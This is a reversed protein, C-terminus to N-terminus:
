KSAKLQAQVRKAWGDAQKTEDGALHGQRASCIPITATSKNNNTKLQIGIENLTAGDHRSIGSQSKYVSSKDYESLTYVESRTEKTEQDVQVWFLMNKQKDLGLAYGTRFTEEEDINSQSKKATEKLLNSLRREKKSVSMQYFFIPAMFLLLLGIGIILSTLDIEMIKQYTIFHITHMVVKYSSGHIM